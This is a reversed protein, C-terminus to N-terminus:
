AAEAVLGAPRAAQGGERVLLLVRGCMLAAALGLAVVFGIWIGEGRLPTFFGLWICIPMGVAWYSFGAILMPIRTDKLGRLAYAATVQAADFVQFAAAFFLFTTAFRLLEGNKPDTEDFYLGAIPGAFLYIILACFIMWVLGAGIVSFSARRVSDHDGAGAALGVRVTGAMAIGLPVMFTISAVNMAIQHAALEITGIRGMLFTAMNFLMAEFMMTLGIPVGLRFLERLKAWDAVFFDKLLRYRRLGRGRLAWALLAAFAIANSISSAIGAGTVELRPAGFHGFIFAYNLLGNLAIMGISILFVARTRSLASGFNRLVGFALSFLLGPALALLYSSAIPILEAPQGMAKYIHPASLYILCVPLFVIASMWLAMRVATRVDETNSPDAGLKQAIIPSVAAIPGFACLWGFWYLTVGITAAALPVAGLAGIMIIDTTMIAIQALQTAALPLGLKLLERGEAAWPRLRERFHPARATGGHEETIIDIM